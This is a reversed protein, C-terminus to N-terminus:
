FLVNPTVRAASGALRDRHPRRVQMYHLMQGEHRELGLQSLSASVVACDPQAGAATERLQRLEADREELLASTRLRQGALQQELEALRLRQQSELSALQSRHAM